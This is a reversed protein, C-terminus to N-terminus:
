EVGGADNKPAPNQVEAAVEKSAKVRKRNVLWKILEIAIISIFTALIIFQM